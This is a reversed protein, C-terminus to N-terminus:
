CDKVKKIMVQGNSIQAQIQAAITPTFGSRLAEAETQRRVLIRNPLDIRPSLMCRCGAHFPPVPAEAKPYVGSGLGWMDADAYFDCADPEQHKSSLRVQLFHIQHDNRYERATKEMYKRASDFACRDAEAVSTASDRDHKASVGRMKEKVQYDITWQEELLPVQDERLLVSRGDLPRTRVFIPRGCCPSKAKRAPRKPLPHGCYPCEDGVMGINTLKSM